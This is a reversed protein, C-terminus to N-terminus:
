GNGTSYVPGAFGTELGADRADSTVQTLKNIISQMMKSHRIIM